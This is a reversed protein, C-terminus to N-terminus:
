TNGEQSQMVDLLSDAEPKQFAIPAIHLSEIWPNKRGNAGRNSKARIRKRCVSRINPGFSAGASCRHLLIVLIAHSFRV